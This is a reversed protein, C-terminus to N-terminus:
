ACATAQATFSSPGLKQKSSQMLHMQYGLLEEATAAAAKERSSFPIFYSRPPLKNLAMIDFRHYHTRDIIYQMTHGEQSTKKLM